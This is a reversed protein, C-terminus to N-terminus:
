CHAEGVQMCKLGWAPRRMRASVFSAANIQRLAMADGAQTLFRGRFGHMTENMCTVKEISCHKEGIKKVREWLILDLAGHPVHLHLM